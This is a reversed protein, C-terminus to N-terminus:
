PPFCNEPKLADKMRQGMGSLASIIDAPLAATTKGGKPLSFTINEYETRNDPFLQQHLRPRAIANTMNNNFVLANILTQVVGTIIRTGNSAGTIVRKACPQDKHYVITPVMSSLPRKGPALRNRENVPMDGSPFSFDLLQNNAIIGSPTMLKSGFWSNLTLTMSIMVENTDIVSLHTTGKDLVPQMVSGYFESSHTENDIKRRLSAAFEKSLFSATSNNIDDRYTVDSPDGLLNRYGFGFKFTEIMQHYTQPSLDSNEQWDFGEMMNLMLSVVPGSSPAPMGLVKFDKFESVIPNPKNVSYKKLDQYTMKGGSKNVMDVFEIGLPGSYFADAGDSAIQKLAEALDPRRLHDGFAVFNQDQLFIRLPNMMEHRLSNLDLHKRLDEDYDRHIEALGKLQGPIGVAMGSVERNSGMLINEDVADPATERFDYAKTESNKHDHYLLFGGGGIGSSQANIVSLCFAAAIAADAANGGQKIIELGIESCKPVDTAVAAHGDIRKPVLYITLVLAVTISLAFIVTTIIIIWLGKNHDTVVNKGFPLPGKSSRLPSHEGRPTESTEAKIKSTKELHDEAILEDKDDTVEASFTSFIPQEISEM